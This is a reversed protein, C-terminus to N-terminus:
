SVEDISKTEDKSKKPIFVDNFWIHEKAPSWDEEKYTPWYDMYLSNFTKELLSERKGNSRIKYLQNWKKWWIKKCIEIWAEVEERQKSAPFIPPVMQEGEQLNPYYRAKYWDAFLKSKEYSLEMM